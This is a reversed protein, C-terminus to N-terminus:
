VRSKATFLLWDITLLVAALLVLWSWIERRGAIERATPMSRGGIAVSESVAISSEEGNLLNVGLVAEGTSTSYEGVRSVTEFAALRTPGSDEAELWRGDLATPGDLRPSSGAPMRIRPSTGTPVSGSAAESPASLSEIAQAVFLAFSIEIPWTSEAAEFAVGIRRTWGDIVDIAIPGTRGRALEDDRSVSGGFWVPEAISVGDLSLGRMSAASRDWRVFRDSAIAEDSELGHPGVPLGFSLTPVPLRSPLSVRDLVALDIGDLGNPDSLMEALGAESISRVTVWGIAELVDGIVWAVSDRPTVHLVRRQPSEPLIIVVTNDSDLADEHRLTIRLRRADGPTLSVTLTRNGPTGETLGPVTVSTREAVAGDLEVLLAVATDDASASQLRLFVNLRAPDTFDRTATAAVIGINDLPPPSTDSSQPGVRLFVPDGPVAERVSSPGGDAVLVVRPPAGDTGEGAPVALAAVLEFASALNGPEDTPEISRVARKAAARDTSMGTLTAPEAAFAVVQVAAGGSLDEILEIARRKAEDLRTADTPSDTANMSASRDILILVRDDLLGGGAITPRGLALALCALALMQILLLWSARLWRFPENVQLDDVAREWLMTSSVRLRKRRLKLFYLLLLLPVAIAAAAVANWPALLSM